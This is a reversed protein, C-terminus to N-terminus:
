CFVQLFVLNLFPVRAVCCIAQMSCPIFVLFTSEDDYSERM